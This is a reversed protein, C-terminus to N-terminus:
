VFNRGPRIVCVQLCFFCCGVARLQTDKISQASNLVLICRHFSDYFISICLHFQIVHVCNFSFAIAAYLCSRHCRHLWLAPRYSDSRYRLPLYGQRQLDQGPVFGHHGHGIVPVLM